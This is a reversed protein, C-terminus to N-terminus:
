ARDTREYVVTVDVDVGTRDRIASQLASALDPRDSDAHVVVRTPTPSIFDADYQVHVARLEGDVTEAAAEDVADEFTANSRADMSAAGLFTSLLLIAAFLVAFRGLTVRRARGTENWHSPRYRKIWFTVIGAANISLLNVAVLVFAGVALVPAGYAIGLGVSAAPPILAVAIMVGVLAEDAGSTLSLAGAAGAGLAVALALLGPHAREAIQGILLLELNPAVTLRYVFGFATASTIAVTVGVVQSRIGEWFLADDNIVTGVCSAMAPGILPAIVMSGVVVSASDELLGASAVVASIITFALYNPTNRSLNRAKTRLEDRSIREDGDATQRQKAEFRDSAITEVESVMTYGSREVGISRLRSLLDEVEAADVPIYVIDSYDSDSTEPSMAYDVGAADLTAVVADHKGEPVLTQILRM